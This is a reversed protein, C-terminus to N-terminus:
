PPTMKRAVVDYITEMVGDINSLVDRNTFRVVEFGYSELRAQRYADAAQTSDHTPGDVEIILRISPSCFDVIFRDIALQRRFKVGLVQKRRIRQWLKREAATPEKRMERALPMLKRWFKPQPQWDSRTSEKDGKRDKKPELKGM